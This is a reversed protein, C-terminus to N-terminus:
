GRSRAIVRYGGGVIFGFIGLNTAANSAHTADEGIMTGLIAGAVGGTLAWLLVSKRSVAGSSKGAFAGIAWMAGGCFVAGVIAGMLGRGLLGGLVAGGMAFFVVWAGINGIGQGHFPSQSGDVGMASDLRAQERLDAQHQESAKIFWDSM